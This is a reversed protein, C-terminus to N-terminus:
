SYLKSISRGEKTNYKYGWAECKYALINWAERVRGLSRTWAECKLYIGKLKVSIVGTKVGNKVKGNDPIRVSDYEGDGGGEWAKCEYNNLKEHERLKMNIM